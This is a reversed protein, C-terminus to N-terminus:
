ATGICVRSVGTRGMGHRATVEFLVRFLLVALEVDNNHRPTRQHPSESPDNYERCTTSMDAYVSLLPSRSFLLHDVTSLKRDFWIHINIVPVGELGNLQKFFPTAAWPEPMLLKMIDVPMASMYLDGQIQPHSSVPVLFSCCCSRARLCDPVIFSGFSNSHIAAFAM